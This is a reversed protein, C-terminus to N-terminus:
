VSVTPVTFMWRRALNSPTARAANKYETLAERFNEQQVYGDARAEYKTVQESPAQSCSFSIGAACIVCCLVAWTAMAM